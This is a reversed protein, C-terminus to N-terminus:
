LLRAFLNETDQVINKRKRRLHDQRIIIWDGDRYNEIIKKAMASIPTKSFSLVVMVVNKEFVAKALNTEFDDKCETVVQDAMVEAVILPMRYNNEVILDMGCCNVQKLLKSSVHNFIKLKTDNDINDCELLFLLVCFVYSERDAKKYWQNMYCANIGEYLVRFRNIITGIMEDDFAMSICKAVSRMDELYQPELASSWYFDESEIFTWISELLVDRKKDAIGKEAFQRAVFSLYHLDKAELNYSDRSSENAVFEQACRLIINHANNSLIVENTKLIKGFLWESVEASGAHSIFVKM